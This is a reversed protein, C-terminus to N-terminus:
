GRIKVKNPPMHTSIHQIVAVTQEGLDKRPFISANVTSTYVIISSRTSVAKVMNEWLQIQAEGGQSVEMGEETLMYHLPKKFAANTVAQTKARLYLSVPIYGLIVGGAILYIVAGQTFYAVLILIGVMTGFIGSLGTYTHHIMYDYLVGTTIKVDFELNM